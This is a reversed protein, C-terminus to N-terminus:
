NNNKLIEGVEYNLIKTRHIICDNNMKIMCERQSDYDRKLHALNCFALSLENNVNNYKAALEELEIKLKKIETEYSEKLEEM